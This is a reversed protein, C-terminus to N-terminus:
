AAQHNVSGSLEPSGRGSAALGAALINLAANTDANGRWACRTCRFSAQSERNEASVHQCQHCRQSTFAAPVLIIETGTCRAQHHLNVLFKGWGKGLIARNLGSKQAARNPLFAGPQEPDPKPAARRTMNTVRLNEVVILRHARTMTRAAKAWFDDRRRRQKALKKTIRAQTRLWRKSPPRRGKRGRTGPVRPGHQRAARQQFRIIAALETPSTFEQDLMRGDSLALAVKVGRDIGVVPLEPDAAAELIGDEVLLSVYWHGHMGDRTLTASRITGGLDRTWRFRVQGFKPLNVQGWRKSLRRVRMHKGEPFRFSPSWSTKSRFKVKSTCHTRCAKDLDKLTQQLCHGPAEALWSLDPDTKAIALERCQEPYSIWSQRQRYQRRQDLGINWVARCIGSVQEAYVQQDATFRVLFRRGSLM